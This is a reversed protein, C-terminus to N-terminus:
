FRNMLRKRIGKTRRTPKHMEEAMDLLAEAEKFEERFMALESQQTLHEAAAQREPPETLENRLKRREAPSELIKLSAELRKLLRQVVDKTDKTGQSARMMLKKRESDYADRIERQTAQWGIGLAEFHNQSKMRNLQDMLLDQTEAREEQVNRTSGEAVSGFGLACSLLALRMAEAQSTGGASGLMSLATPSQAIRQYFRQEKQTLRYASAIRELDISLIQDVTAKLDSTTQELTSLKAGVRFMEALLAPGSVPLLKTHIPPDSWPLVQIRGTKYGMPLVARDVTQARLAKNLAEQRLKGTEMLVVGLPRGDPNDLATSVAMRPVARTTVLRRGILDEEKEPKRTTFVIRKSYVWLAIEEDGSVRVVAATELGLLYSMVAAYHGNAESVDTMNRSGFELMQSPAMPGILAADYQISVRSSGSSQAAEEISAPDECLAKLRKKVGDNMVISFGVTGPGQFMAEADIPVEVPAGPVSLKLQKKTGPSVPEMALVIAGNQLNVRYQVRYQAHSDFIVVNHDALRPVAEPPPEEEEEEEAEPEEESAGYVDLAGKLAGVAAEVQALDKARLMMINGTLKAPELAVDGICATSVSGRALIPRGALLTLLHALTDIDDQTVVNGYEDLEAYSTSEVLEVGALDSVQSLPADLTSVLVDPRQEEEAPMGAFEGLAGKLDETTLNKLGAANKEAIPIPTSPPAPIPADEEDEAFEIEEILEFIEPSMKFTIAAESDGAFVVEGQLQRGLVEITVSERFDLACDTALLISNPRLEAIQAEFEGSERRVLARAM